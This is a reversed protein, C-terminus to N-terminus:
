GKKQVEHRLLNFKNVDLKSQDNRNSSHDILPLKNVSIDLRIQNSLKNTQLSHKEASSQRKIARLFTNKILPCNPSAGVNKVSEQWNENRANNVVAIRSLQPPVPTLSPSEGLQNSRASALDGLRTKDNPSTDSDGYQTHEFAFDSQQM